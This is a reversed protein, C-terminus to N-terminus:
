KKPEEPSSVQAKDCAEQVLQALTKANSKDAIASLLYDHDKKELVTQLASPTLVSAVFLGTQDNISENCKVLVAGPAITKDEKLCTDLTPIKGEKYLNMLDDVSMFKDNVFETFQQKNLHLYRKQLYHAFASMGEQTLTWPNDLCNFDGNRTFVRVGCTVARMPSKVLCNLLASGEESVLYLHEKNGCVRLSLRNRPFSEPLNYFSKISEWDTDAIKRFEQTWSQWTGIISFIHYNQM